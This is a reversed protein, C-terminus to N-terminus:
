HAFKVLIDRRDDKLLVERVDSTWREEPMKFKSSADM